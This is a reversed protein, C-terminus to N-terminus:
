ACKHHTQLFRVFHLESTKRTDLMNHRFTPQM